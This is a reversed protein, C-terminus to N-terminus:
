VRGRHRELAGDPRLASNTPSRGTSSSFPFSPQLTKWSHFLVSGPGITLHEGFRYAFGTLVGGTITDDFSSGSEGSSQVSPILFASWDDGIGKRMPVGLSLSHVDEWPAAAAIGSGRSFSYGDYSYGLALSATTRPDWAYGHGAQITFRASMTAAGKM